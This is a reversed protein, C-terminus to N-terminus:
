QYTGFNRRVWAEERSVVYRSGYLYFNGCVHLCDDYGSDGGLRGFDLISDHYDGLINGFYDERGLNCRDSDVDRFIGM